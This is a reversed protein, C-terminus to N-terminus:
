DSDKYQLKLHFYIIKSPIDPCLLYIQPRLSQLYFRVHQDLHSICLVM